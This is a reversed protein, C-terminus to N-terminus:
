QKLLARLEKYVQRGLDVDETGVQSYGHNRMTAEAQELKGQEELQVLLKGINERMKVVREDIVPPPEFAPSVIAEPAEEVPAPAREEAWAELGPFVALLVYELDDELVHRCEPPDSAKALRVYRVADQRERRQWNHGRCWVTEEDLRRGGLLSWDFDQESYQLTLGAPPLSGSHWGMKGYHRLTEQLDQEDVEISVRAGLNTTFHVTLRAM